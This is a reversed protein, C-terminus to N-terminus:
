STDCHRDHGRLQPRVKDFLARNDLDQWVELRSVKAQMSDELCSVAPEIRQTFPCRDGYFYLVDESQPYQDPTLKQAPEGAPVAAAAPAAKPTSTSSGMNIFPLHKREDSRHSFTFHCFDKLLILDDDSQLCIRM